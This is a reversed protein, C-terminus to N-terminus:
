PLGVANAPSRKHAALAAAAGSRLHLELLAAEGLPKGTGAEITGHRQRDIHEQVSFEFDADNAPDHCSGCIQLIVCSDCKDGLSVISGLKQADEGVHDGGPGHCSECGVRALDPHDSTAAGNPFGGNKGLGTTHCRQCDANDAEGKSHLSAMARAHPSAEWTAFESTHCSQCADSGVHSAQTPLVNRPKSGAAVLAAREPASMSAIASHSIKPRFSAYDFGLSHTPNHCTECVPAYNGEQVHAPSLHPGGRGHCTECGVNELHASPAAMDFGGPQGFGVVHCSVCEGDREEGHTVLSDYASAHQTYEWSRAELEHCVGCVDNGTYGTKALLMPIRDGALKHVQMRVIAEDRKRWGVSRFAIGGDADIFVLDPVGAFSGYLSRVKDDPDRLIPFYDLGEKRMASRVSSPQDVLSVGYLLPRKDEPIQPLIDKLFGLAEHCHPCTHLFFVLLIPKGRHEALDFDGGELLPTTFTPAEPRAMVDGTIEEPESPIRLQERLEQEIRHAADPARTPFSGTAFSMYGEADAGILLVRSRLGLQTSIRATSDDLIPFDLGFEEAFRRATDRDSGVAVGVIQFNYRDNIGALAAVAGAVPRAEPTEPNFFFLLLRKGLLSSVALRDGDLTTGEFAPLPREQRAPPKEDAAADADRDAAASAPAEESGCAFVFILSACLLSTAFRQTPVRPLMGARVPVRLGPQM